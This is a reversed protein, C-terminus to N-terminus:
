GALGRPDRTKLEELKRVRGQSVEYLFGAAIVPMRLYFHLSPKLFYNPNFRGEKVMEVTRNHHHAEDEQYLYPLGGEIWPRWWVLAIAATIALFLLPALNISSRTPSPTISSLQPGGSEVGPTM